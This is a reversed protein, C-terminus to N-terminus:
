NMKEILIVQKTENKKDTKEYTIGSLDGFLKKIQHSRKISLIYKLM